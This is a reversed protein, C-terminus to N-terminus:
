RNSPSSIDASKFRTSNSSLARAELQGLNQSRWRFPEALLLWHHLVTKPWFKGASAGPLNDSYGVAQRFFTRFEAGLQGAGSPIGTIPKAALRVDLKRLPPLLVKASWGHWTNTPLTRLRSLAWPM